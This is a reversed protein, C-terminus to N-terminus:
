RRLFHSGPDQRVEVFWWREGEPLGQFPTIHIRGPRGRGADPVAISVRGERMGELMAPFMQEAWITPPHGAVLKGSTVDIVFRDTASDPIMADLASGLTRPTCEIPNFMLVHQTAAGEDETVRVTMTMLRLARQDATRALVLKQRALDALNAGRTGVLVTDLGPRGVPQDLGLVKRCEANVYILRSTSDTVMCCVPIAHMASAIESNRRALAHSQDRIARAEGEAFRRLDDLRMGLYAVTRFLWSAVVTMVIIASVPDVSVLRGAEGKFVLLTRLLWAATPLGFLLLLQISFTSARQQHLRWSELTAWASALLCTVGFIILTLAGRGSWWLLLVGAMWLGSAVIARRGLFGRTLFDPERLCRLSIGQMVTAIAHLLTALSLMFPVAGEGLPLVTLAPSVGGLAYARWWLRASTDRMGFSWIGIIGVGISLFAGFTLTFQVASFM